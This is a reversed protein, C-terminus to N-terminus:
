QKRGIEQRIAREQGRAKAIADIDSSVSPVREEDTAQTTRAGGHPPSVLTRKRDAKSGPVIGAPRAGGAPAKIMPAFDRRMGDAVAKYADGIKTKPKEQAFASLRQRFIPALVENGLIDANAREAEDLLRQTAIRQSVLRSVTAEDPGAPRARIVSALTQVAETDGMGAALIVNRLEEDSLTPAPTAKPTLEAETARQLADRARQLTEETALGNSASERLQRLTLWRIEGNIATAYYRVGDIVREDGETATADGAAATGTDAGEGAGSGEGEGPAGGEEQLTRARGAAEAQAAAIARASSLREREEDTGGAEEGRAEAERLAEEAAAAEALERAERAEPSDEFEGGAFKGTVNEGQVDALEDSRRGDVGRSIEEIRRLRAANQAANVQAPTPRAGEGDTNQECFTRGLLNRLM